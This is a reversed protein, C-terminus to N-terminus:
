IYHKTSLMLNNRQKMPYDARQCKLYDKTKNENVQGYRNPAKRLQPM